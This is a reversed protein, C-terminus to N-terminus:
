FLYKIQALVGLSHTDKGYVEIIGYKEKNVTTEDGWSIYNLESLLIVNNSLKYTANVGAIITNISDAGVQAYLVLKPTAQYSMGLYGYFHGGWAGYADYKLRKLYLSGEPIDKKDSPNFAEGNENVFIYSDKRSKFGGQVWFGILPTAQWDARIRTAFDFSQPTFATVNSFSFPEYNAKAAIVVSPLKNKNSWDIDSIALNNYDFANIAYYPSTLPSIATNNPLEVSIALSLDNTYNTTYRIAPTTGALAFTVDNNFTGGYSIWSYFLSDIYGLTIKDQDNPLYSISAYRLRVPAFMLNNAWDSRFLVDSTFIGSDTKSHSQIQLDVRGSAYFDPDPLFLYTRALPGTLPYGYNGMGFISGSIELCNNNNAFIYSSRVGPTCAPPRPDNRKKEQAAFATSTLICSLASIYFISKTLFNNNGM